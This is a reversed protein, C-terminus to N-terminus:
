KIINNNYVLIKKSIEEQVEDIREIINGEEARIRKLELSLSKLEVMLTAVDKSSVDSNSHSILENKKYNYCDYFLMVKTKIEDISQEGIGRMYFLECFDDKEAMSFLDTVTIQKVNRAFAGVVRSSFGFDTQIDILEPQLSIDFSENLYKYRLLRTTGYIENKMKLTFPTVKGRFLEFLYGNDYSEFLNGLTVIQYSSFLDLTNLSFFKDLDSLRIERYDSYTCIDNTM